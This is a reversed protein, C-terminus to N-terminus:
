AGLCCMPIHNNKQTKATVPNSLRLGRSAGASLGARCAATWLGLVALLCAGPEPVPTVSYITGAATTGTGSLKGITTMDTLYLQEAAGLLGYPHGMIQSDFFHFYEGTAPDARVLPNEENALGARAWMGFFPVFVGSALDAPFSSPALALETAGESRRGDQPLFAVLRQTFEPADGV